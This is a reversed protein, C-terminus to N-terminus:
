SSLRENGLPLHLAFATQGLNSSASITGGLYEARKKVLALGLGTGGHKWPDNNPVRHFKDFVHALESTPIETGTNTVQLLLQNDVVHASLIIREHAPTYKCANHLLERLIKELYSVDIRIFSLGIAIDITLSQQQLRIRENFAEAVYPLWQHLDIETLLLPETGAELRSLDLLDNILSAERNGEDQLIQLYRFVSHTSDPLEDIQKLTISLMETAMKISSIPTRLEHSVTSLFDDKLYNLRELEKVQAQAAQYLRAQRLAIACQNAVQQVLRVELDNFSHDGHHSLWLDGIVGQDDFVPCAFITIQKQRVPRISDRTLHCFQFCQGHLLQAYVDPADIMQVIQGQAPPLSHTHEYWITSTKQELNYLATDCCDVSLLQTLEEVVTQLIQHEDLSDRVKDTIRKLASELDLAQQLQATREQVQAELFLNSQQVQAFLESQQIAIAVQTALQKLLGLESPQWKRPQTCQHAILLGWLEAKHLIPVVLKSQVGIQQLTETLCAAMADQGIDTIARVRGQRYLEHCEIPFMEEPLIQDLLPLQGSAVAENTVTGTGDSNVRYTLVRDAQLFQRVESVTTNLIHHLDLSQRIRQTMESILHEQNAQQRLTAETQQRQVIEDHAQQYLESQHIAIATQTAVQQLLEVEVTRWHRPADCQQAVLLGWLHEETVIPVVLNARVQLQLLLEAHCPTLKAAYVDEVVQVRGQQYLHFYTEAFDCDHIVTGSIAKWDESVAEVVVSGSGDLNLHYIIVRDTKLIHQIEAVTTHLIDELKLSQHIQRTIASILQEREAQQRLAFEVATKEQIETELASNAVVLAATREQVRQEMEGYSRQLASEVRQRQLEAAARAAFITI